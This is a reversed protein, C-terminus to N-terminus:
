FGMEEKGTHADLAYLKGWEWGVYVTEEAM